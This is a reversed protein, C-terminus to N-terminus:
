NITLLKINEPTKGSLKIILVPNKLKGSKYEESEIERYKVVLDQDKSEIEAVEIDGYVIKNLKPKIVLLYENEELTPVPESRSFNKDSLQDYIEVVKEFTTVLTIEPLSVDKNFRKIESFEIAKQQHNVILQNNANNYGVFNSCSVFAVM